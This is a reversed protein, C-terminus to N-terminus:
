KFLVFRYNDRKLITILSDTIEPIWRRYAHTQHNEKEDIYGAESEWHRQYFSKESKSATKQIEYRDPDSVFLTV